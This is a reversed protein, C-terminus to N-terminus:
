HIESRDGERAENRAEAYLEIGKAIITRTRTCYEPDPTHKSGTKLKHVFMCGGGCLHRAWCKGCGNLEVLPDAYAALKAQDLTTGAGVEESKDGVFWQCTTFKGSTDVQLHNKGAGCHNFIRRREDLIQFYHDYDSIKRLEAEGGERFALEAMENLGQAYALSAERDEPGAAFDFKYLDFNYRKLFRYASLVDTNHPGFIAAVALTGLRDRVALLNELGRLTQATSGTGARTPRNVDNVDPSGDLSVTVYCNISALLEAIERTVLTGNTVIHFVPTIDRGIVQLKVFRAISAIAEPYILPEGGLFTFTFREGNPVDHLLMTIQEYLKNLDIQKVRSGYTGDGGAACYTCKLNCIQAINITLSRIKQQVHADRVSADIESNWTQIEEKVETAAAEPTSLAGWVMPDLHAVQLNRAHFGVVSGQETQIAIINDFRLLKL